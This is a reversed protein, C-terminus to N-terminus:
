AALEKQVGALADFVIHQECGNFCSLGVRGHEEFIWLPWREGAGCAPCSAAVWMRRSSTCRYDIGLKRLSGLVLDVPRRARTAATSRRAHKHGAPFLDSWLLGVVRVIEHAQCGVHCWLLARGDAGTGVALSDPKGSDHAPCRSRFQHIPGFPACDHRELADWVTQLPNANGQAM